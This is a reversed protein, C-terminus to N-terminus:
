YHLGRLFNLSVTGVYAYVLSSSSLSLYKFLLHFVVIFATRTTM